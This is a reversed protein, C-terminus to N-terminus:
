AGFTDAWAKALGERISMRNSGQQAPAVAGGAVGHGGGILAAQQRKAELAAAEDAQRKAQAEQQARQLEAQQERLQDFMMHRYATDLDPADIRVAHQLLAVEDVDGYQQKITSIEREVMQQQQWAQLESLQAQTQQLAQEEPSLYEPEVEAGGLNVGLSEALYQLTAQPNRELATQLSEAMALQRQREALAQTKQTYDATRQYGALAEQLPVRQVEGNVKVEVLHDSYGSPDFISPEPAPAGETGIETPTSTDLAADFGVAEGGGVDLGAEVTPTATVDDPM